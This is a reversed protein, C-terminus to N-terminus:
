LRADGHAGSGPRLRARYRGAFNRFGSSEPAAYWGGDLAPTRSSARITGCAPASCSCANSISATPPSRRCWKRCRTPATPFSSRQRRRNAAQAVRTCRGRWAPRISRINRWRWARPRRPAGSGAPVRGGGGHWLRQRAAAGRVFAQRASIAFDVIRKVDSEPLFSLLYVGRSAVSADTSFAIVPINRQRAVAGVASVSKRSCRGSSSRPAKASRRSRPRGARRAAHRRRGEGALQINPNKFEALAMEAANKMSQAAVGANGPASLPLILGVRIQGAGINRGAAARGAAGAAHAPRVSRQCHRRLCHAGRRAAAIGLAACLAAGGCAAADGRRGAADGAHDSGCAVVDRAM